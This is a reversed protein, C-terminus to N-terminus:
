TRKGESVGGDRQRQHSEKQSKKSCTREQERCEIFCFLIQKRKNATDKTIDGKVCEMNRGRWERQSLTSLVPEILQPTRSSCTAATTVLTVNELSLSFFHVISGRLMVPLRSPFPSQLSCLPICLSSYLQSQLSRFACLDPLGQYLQLNHSRARPGRRLTEDASSCKVHDM